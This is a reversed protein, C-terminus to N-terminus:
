SEWFVFVLISGIVFLVKIVPGGIREFRSPSNSQFFFNRERLLNLSGDYLIWWISALLLITKGTFWAFGYQLYLIYIFVVAWGIFQVDHWIRGYKRNKKDQTYKEKERYFNEFINASIFLIFFILLLILNM